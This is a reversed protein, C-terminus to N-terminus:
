RALRAKSAAAPCPGLAGLSRYIADFAVIGDGLEFWRRAAARITGRDITLKLVDEAAKSLADADFREVLIAAESDRALAAVDGVGSNVVMPLGLALMEGLKTPSCAVASFSPQKFAVGFDAAAILRPVEDRTASRIIVEKDAIGQMRAAELIETPANHTVFLLRAGPRRDRVAVFLRLMEDLMYNGGLSGLYGVVTADASLGLEDRTVNRHAVSPLAFHTFDVCCPIVSVEAVPRNGLPRAAMQDRAARTLCVIADAERFFDRERRKFYRYVMGFPPHGWGGGELREEAWFGRMDFLFCVEFRRKLALGSLAAMYSRCHIVDHPVNELITRAARTLRSVNNASSAIPVRNHYTQMHWEIGAAACQDHVQARAEKSAAPKELSILTIRHGLAALGVLYPMVQSGGLPDTMGDYSLYLVRQGSASGM